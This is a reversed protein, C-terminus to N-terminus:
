AKRLFTPNIVTWPFEHSKEKEPHWIKSIYRSICSKRLFHRLVFFCKLHVLFQTLFYIRRCFNQISAFIIRLLCWYLYMTNTSWFHVEGRFNNVGNGSNKNSKKMPGMCSPVFLNISDRSFKFICHVKYGKWM